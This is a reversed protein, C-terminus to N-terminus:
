LLDHLFFIPWWGPLCPSSWTNQGGSIDPPAPLHILYQDHFVFLGNRIQLLVIQLQASKFHFHGIVPLRSQLLGQVLIEVKEDQVQHQGPHVAKLDAALHPVAFIRGDDHDRGLLIVNVLYPSQSQSRVVIHCLGEAGALQHGPHLGVQGAILPKHPAGGLCVLDDLYPPQLDVGCGASHPDIPLFLIKRCLLKIQQSKKCTVRIMHISFIFQEALYPVHFRDSIDGSDCHM